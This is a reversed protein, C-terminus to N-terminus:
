HHSNQYCFKCFNELTLTQFLSPPGHTRMFDILADYAVTIEDWYEDIWEAETLPRPRMMDCSVEDWTCENEGESSAFGNDNYEM